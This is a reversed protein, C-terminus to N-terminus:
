ATRGRVLARTDTKAVAKSLDFVGAQNRLRVIRWTGRTANYEAEDVFFYRDAASQFALSSFEVWQGYPCKHPPIPQQNPLRPLGDDDMLIDAVTQYVPEEYVVLKREPTVKYLLRRNNSTGFAALDRIVQLATLSGDQYALTLLGSADDIQSAPVFEGEATIISAIQTTTAITGTVRFILDANTPRDHYGIAITGRVKLSGGTYSLADDVGVAYADLSKTGTRDLLLGYTTGYALAYSAAFVGTVWDMSAPIESFPITATALLAGPTGGSDTYLKITISDTPAGITQARIDVAVATFPNNTGLTFTQYIKDGMDHVQVSAGAAETVFDPAGFSYNSGPENTATVTRDDNNAANAAGVTYIYNYPVVESIAWTGASNAAVTLVGGPGFQITTMTPHRRGLFQLAESTIVANEEIGAAAGTTNSYYRWALTEIWGKCALDAYGQGDSDSAAFIKQPDKRNALEQAQRATAAAASGNGGLVTLEITGYEAAQATDTSFGTDTQLGGSSYAENTTQQLYSVNISTAMGDMTRGYVLAGSHVTASFLFGWWVREGAGDFIEVKGRLAEPLKRLALEPGYARITALKAGGDAAFSYRQVEFRLDPFLLTRTLDRATITVTLDEAM